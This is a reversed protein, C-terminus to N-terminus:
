KPGGQSEEIRRVIWWVGLAILLLPWAFEMFRGHFVDLQGLLFMIGLAILM